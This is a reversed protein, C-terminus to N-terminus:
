NGEVIISVQDDIQKPLMVFLAPNLKESFGSVKNHLLFNIHDGHDGYLYVVTNDLHGKEDLKRLYKEVIEDVFSHNEGTFEHAGVIKIKFFKRYDKYVDFFQDMYKMSIETLDEQYLCKRSVTFPGRGMGFSWTNANPFSNHDCSHSYFLHDADVQDSYTQPTVDV